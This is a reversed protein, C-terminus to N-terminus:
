GAHDAEAMLVSKIDTGPTVGDLEMVESNEHTAMKRKDDDGFVGSASVYGPRGYVRQQM